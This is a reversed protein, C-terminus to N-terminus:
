NWYANSRSCPAANQTQYSSSQYGRNQSGNYDPERPQSHRVDTARWRYSSKARFGSRRAGAAVQDLWAPVEQKSETLVEILSHAINSDNYTVFSTAIGTNGARATRGIRHVYSDVDKPLEYNVVSDRICM